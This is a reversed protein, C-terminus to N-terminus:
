NEASMGLPVCEWSFFFAVSRNTRTSIVRVDLENSVVDCHMVYRECTIIGLAMYDILRQCLVSQLIICDLFSCLYELRFQIYIRNWLYYRRILLSIHINRISILM